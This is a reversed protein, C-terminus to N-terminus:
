LRESKGKQTDKKRDNRGRGETERRKTAKQTSKRDKKREKRLMLLDSHSNKTDTSRTPCVISPVNELPSDDDDDDDDDHGRGEREEKKGAKSEKTM